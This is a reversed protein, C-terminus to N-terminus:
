PFLFFSQPGVDLLRGNPVRQARISMVGNSGNYEVNGDTTYILFLTLPFVIALASQVELGVHAYLNRVVDSTSLNVTTPLMQCVWTRPIAGSDTMFVGLSFTTGGGIAAANVHGAIEVDIVEGVYALPIIVQVNDPNIASHPVFGAATAALTNKVAELDSSDYAIGQTPLRVGASDFPSVTANPEAYQTM